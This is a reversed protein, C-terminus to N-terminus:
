GSGGVRIASMAQLRQYWQLNYDTTLPRFEWQELLCRATKEYGIM